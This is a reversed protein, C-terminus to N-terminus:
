TFIHILTIRKIPDKYTPATLRSNSKSKTSGLIYFTWFTSCQTSNWQFRNFIVLRLLFPHHLSLSLILLSLPPYILSLFLYLFLFILNEKKILFIQLSLLNLLLPYFFSLRNLWIAIKINLFFPFSPISFKLFFLIKKISLTQINHIQKIILLNITYKCIIIIM